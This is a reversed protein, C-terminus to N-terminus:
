FRGQTTYDLDISRLAVIPYDSSTIKLAMYRGGRAFSNAWNDTGVTYTVATSYVPDAYATMCSGHQISLVTGEPAKVQPRSASLVKVSESDDLSIGRKELMFTIATGFDTSGTDALGIKPATTSLILRGENQSYENGDIVATNTDIVETHSDIIASGITSPILGTTGYTLGSISFDGWTNDKWNWVLVRNCSTNGTTPFAVWLENKRPNIALFSRTAYTTDMSNFLWRRNSGEIISESGGGNHIRVDGNALFVQGKPTNAICGRGLLGDVDPIRFVQFVSNGGIYRVGFRSDQDYIYAVDGFVMGDVLSGGTEATQPTSGADNTSTATWSTPVAGPEAANGWYIVQPQKVSSITAGLALIYNKFFLVSDCKQGSPWAPMRRLRTTVDGNWYYMGDVPNNLILVGNFAGGTWRDDVAGTFNAQVNYSYQGVTTASSGPDAAMTYTFTTAGTVTIAGTVNYGTPVAGFVTVTDGTTRGHNTATTLTATTGVRTISSIVAGDTYRTIESRTTGDDVFVKTTGAQVVFRAASTIYTTTFYPVVTPTTFAAAIGGRKEAFGNGFRANTCNTWVGPPLESAMLDRNVGGGCEKIKILAM